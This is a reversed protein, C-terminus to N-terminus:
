DNLAYRVCLMHHAARDMNHSICLIVLAILSEICLTCVVHTPIHVM